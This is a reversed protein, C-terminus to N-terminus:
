GFGGVVVLYAGFSESSFFQNQEKGETDLDFEGHVMPLLGFVMM